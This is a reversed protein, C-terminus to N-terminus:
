LVLSMTAALIATTAGLVATTWRSGLTEQAGSEAFDRRGLVVTSNRLRQKPLMNPEPTVQFQPSVPSGDFNFLHLKPGATADMFIRWSTYFEPINTEEVFNSVAACPDQVQQFGDGAPTMTISGNPNLSYQGHTWGIVGTICTPQSGNGNFRYRAIEYWGDSSFSYSVGTTPPYTFTLAAPNAFGPGTVVAQSGSSWTGIISTANHETDYVIPTGQANIPSVLYAALLALTTTPLIM